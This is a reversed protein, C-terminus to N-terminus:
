SIIVSQIVKEILHKKQQIKLGQPVFEALQNSFMFHGECGGNYMTSIYSRTNPTMPIYRYKSDLCQHRLNPM